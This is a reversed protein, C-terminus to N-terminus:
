NDWFPFPSSYTKKVNHQRIQSNDDPEIRKLAITRLHFFNDTAWSSKGKYRVKEVSRFLFSLSSLRFDNVNKLDYGENLLFLGVYYKIIKDLSLFLDKVEAYKYYNGFKRIVRNLQKEFSLLSSYEKSTDTLATIKAVFLNIAESSIAIKEREIKFGAFSVSDTFFSGDSFGTEDTKLGLSVLEMKIKIILSPIISIDPLFVLFERRTCLFPFSSLINSVGLLMYPVLFASLRKNELEQTNHRKQFFSCLGNYLYYEGSSTTDSSLLRYNNLMTNYIPQMLIEPYFDAVEFRLFYPYKSGYNELYGILRDPRLGRLFHQPFLRDIEPIFLKSITTYLDVNTGGLSQKVKRKEGRNEM